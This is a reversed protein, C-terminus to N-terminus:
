FFKALKKKAGSIRDAVSDRSIGLREAAADWTLGRVYCLEMVEKQKETLSDLDRKLVSGENPEGSLRDVVADSFDPTSLEETEKVNGESLSVAGHYAEREDAAHDLNMQGFHSLVMPFPLSGYVEETVSESQGCVAEFTMCECNWVARATVRGRDDQATFFGNEYVTILLGSDEVSILKPVNSKILTRGQIKKGSVDPVMSKLQSYTTDATIKFNAAKM